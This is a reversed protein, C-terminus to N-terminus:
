KLIRKAIPFGAWNTFPTLLCVSIIVLAAGLKYKYSKPTYVGIGKNYLQQTRRKDKIFLDLISKLEKQIKNQRIYTQIIM